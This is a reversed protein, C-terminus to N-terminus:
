DISSVFCYTGAAVRYRVEGEGMGITEVAGARGISVGSETVLGPDSCPVHVTASAGVPITVRLTLATGSREWSCAILGRASRYELRAWTIGGGAVPHLVVHALGPSSEDFRLGGIVAYLWEGISGFAYHNLSSLEGRKEPPGDPECGDWREWITTAGKTISFGWSPYEASLALGYAIDVLGAQTLAPLMSSVGLFGTHIRGGCRAIVRALHAAAITPDVLGFRIALAYVTQTDSEITGDAKVFAKVFATKVDRFLGEYEDADADRGIARACLGVLKATHAFFATGTVTNPAKPEPSLWDGWGAPARVFGNSTSLLYGVWARMAPYFEEIITRDGGALYLNWPVTVIADGYGFNGYGVDRSPVADAIAGDERQHAMLDRLWSKLFLATDMNFTATRAFVQADGTWGVRESRQPCDTPLAVFNGRQSWVINSQLQNLLPESCEFTGTPELDSSVVMGTIDDPGPQMGAGSVEVYRFGHLTFQPEFMEGSGDGRLVYTDTCAARLLNGTFLSGDAHLTEGHRLQVRTGAQGQVRIRVWGVMNQGMDVIWVGEGRDVISTPRLERVVRVPPASQAELRGVGPDFEIAPRWSSADFRHTDWGLMERRGDRWEGMFLDAYRIPGTAGHWTNDTTVLASTGDDFTLVLCCLLGKRYGYLNEYTKWLGVNGSFWGDAVTAALVNDGARMLSTVDYTQYVIRRSYDTWGPALLEDGVKRGNLRIEYIGAATAHLRARAVTRSVGFQKRVCVPPVLKDIQRYASTSQWPGGGFRGLERAASWGTTDCERSLWGSPIEHVGEGTVDGRWQSSTAISIDEGTDLTVTCQLVVGTGEGAGAVIALTNRGPELASAIDWVSPCQVTTQASWRSDTQGNVAVCYKAQNIWSKFNGNAAIHLRASTVRSDRPLSFAHHVCVMRDPDAARPDDPFVWSAQALALREDDGVPDITIWRAGLLSLDGPAAEWCEVDSWASVANDRDWVRVKWFCRQAPLLAAGGYSIHLSDASVVM